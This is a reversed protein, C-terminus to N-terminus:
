EFFAGSPESGNSRSTSADARAGLLNMHEVLLKRSTELNGQEIADVIRRHYDWVTM